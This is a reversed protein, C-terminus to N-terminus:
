YCIMVRGTQAIASHDTVVCDIIVAELGALVERDNLRKITVHKSLFGVDAQVSADIM